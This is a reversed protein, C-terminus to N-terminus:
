NVCIQTISKKTQKHLVLTVSVLGMDTVFSHVQQALASTQTSILVRKRCLTPDLNPWTQLVTQVRNRDALIRVEDIELVTLHCCATQGMIAYLGLLLVFTRFPFLKATDCLM